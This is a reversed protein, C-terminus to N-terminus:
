TNTRYSAALMSSVFAADSSQKFVLSSHKVQTRITRSVLRYHMRSTAKSLTNLYFYSRM